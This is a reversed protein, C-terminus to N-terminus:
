ALQDTRGEPAIQREKASNSSMAALIESTEHFELSEIGGIM